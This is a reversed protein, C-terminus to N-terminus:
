PILGGHLAMGNMAAAMGHERVGYYIYRGNYDEPSVPDMCAAKTNNSGTLDASGGIMTEVVAAFEDLAKQSSM